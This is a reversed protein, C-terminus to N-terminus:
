CALPDTIVVQNGRLLFNDSHMDFGDYPSVRALYKMVQKLGADKTTKVVKQADYADWVRTGGSCREFKNVKSVEKGIELREMKVIVFGRCQRIEYVKPLWPNTEHHKKCWKLYNITCAQETPKAIIKYVHTDNGYVRAYVGTGLKKLGLEKRLKNCFTEFRM